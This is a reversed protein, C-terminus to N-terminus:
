ENIIFKTREIVTILHANPEKFGLVTSKANKQLKFTYYYIGPTLDKTDDRSLEINFSHTTGFPTKVKKADSYTYGRLIIADEFRDHPNLLAFYLIDNPKFEYYGNLNSNDEIPMTFSYYDGRNIKIIRTSM